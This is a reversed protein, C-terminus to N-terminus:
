SVLVPVIPESPASAPDIPDPSSLATSILRIGLSEGISHITYVAIEQINIRSVQCFQGDSQLVNSEFIFKVWASNNDFQEHNVSISSLRNNQVIAQKKYYNEAACSLIGLLISDEEM